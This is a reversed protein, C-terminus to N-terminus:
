IIGRVVRVVIRTVPDPLLEGRERWGCEQIVEDLKNYSVILYM